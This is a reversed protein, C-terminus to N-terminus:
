EGLISDRIRYYDELMWNNRNLWARILGRQKDDVRSQKIKKDNYEKTTSTRGQVEKNVLKVLSLLQESNLESLRDGVKTTVELDRNHQIYGSKYLQAIKDEQAGVQLQWNFEEGIKWPKGFASFPRKVFVPWDVQWGLHPPHVYGDHKM